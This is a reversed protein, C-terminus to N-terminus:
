AAPVPRTVMAAPKILLRDSRSDHGTVTRRRPTEVWAPVSVTAMWPLLVVATGISTLMPAAPETGRIAHTMWAPTSPAV